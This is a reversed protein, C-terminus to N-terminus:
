KLSRERVEIQDLKIDFEIAGVWGGMRGIVSSANAGGQIIASAIDGTTIYKALFGVGFADGVGTRDVTAVKQYVGSRWISSGNSVIAGDESGTIVALSVFNTLKVVSGELTTDKTIMEAEARNVLLIDVDEFLGWCKEIDGLEIESPNFLIKCGASKLKYFLKDYLDFDGGNSSVYAWKFDYDTFDIETIDVSSWDALSGIVSQRGTGHDYLHYNTPTVVESSVRALTTDVNAGDLDRLIQQGAGDQGLPALVTVPFGWKALTASINSGSGGSFFRRENAILEAGVKIQNYLGGDQSVLSLGSIRALYVDQELNGVVLVGSKAM